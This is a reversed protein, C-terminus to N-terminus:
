SIFPSHHIEIGFILFEDERGVTTSHPFSCRRQSQRCIRIMRKLQAFLFGRQIDYPLRLDCRGLSLEPRDQGALADAYKRRVHLAVDGWQHVVPARDSGLREVEVAAIPETERQQEGGRSMEVEQSEVAV